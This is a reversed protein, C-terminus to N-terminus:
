AKLAVWGLITEKKEARHWLQQQNGRNKLVRVAEGGCVGATDQTRSGAPVSDSHLLQRFKSQFYKKHVSFFKFSLPCAETEVYEQMYLKGPQVWIDQPQFLPLLLHILPLNVSISVLGCLWGPAQIFISRCSVWPQREATNSFRINCWCANQSLVQLSLCTSFSMLWWGATM